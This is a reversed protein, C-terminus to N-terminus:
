IYFSLPRGNAATYGAYQDQGHVGHWNGDCGDRGCPCGDSSYDLPDFPPDEDDDCDSAPHEDRWQLWERERQQEWAAVCAPCDRVDQDYYSKCTDCWQHPIDDGTVQNIEAPTEAAPPNPQTHPADYPHKLEGDDVSPTATTPPPSPVAKAAELQTEVAVLAEEPRAALSSLVGRAASCDACEHLLPSFPSPLFAADEGRHASCVCCKSGFRLM